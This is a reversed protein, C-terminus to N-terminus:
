PRHKGSGDPPLPAPTRVASRFSHRMRFIQKSATKATVAASAAGWGDRLLPWWIPTPGYGAVYGGGVVVASQPDSRLVRTHVIGVRNAM